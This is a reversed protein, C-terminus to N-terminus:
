NQIGFFSEYFDEIVKILEDHPFDDNVLEIWDCLSM